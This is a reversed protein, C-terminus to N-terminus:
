ISEVQWYQLEVPTARGFITVVVRVLGKQENIDEVVGDFNEFPGEKIKVKDGVQFSIKIKAAEGPVAGVGFIKAVEEPRLPFPKPISQGSGAKPMAGAGVFDGVGIMERVFLWTEDDMIMNILVYGPYTKVTRTRKKGNKIEAIKETPVVVDKVRDQLGRLQIKRELNRKVSDEKNSQVRIAYWRPADAAPLAADASM